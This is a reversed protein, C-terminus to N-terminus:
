ITCKLFAFRYFLDIYRATGKGILHLIFHETEYLKYEATKFYVQHLNM